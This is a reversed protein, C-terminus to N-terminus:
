GIGRESIVQALEQDFTDFDKGSKRTAAPKTETAEQTTTKAARRTSIVKLLSKGRRALIRDLTKRAERRPNDILAEEDVFGANVLDYFLDRHDSETVGLKELQTDFADEFDAQARRVERDSAGEPASAKAPEGKRIAELRDLLQKAEHNEQYAKQAWEVWGSDGADRAERTAKWARLADREEEARKWSRYVQKFRPHEPNDIPSAKEAEGEETEESEETPEEDPEGEEEKGAAEIAAQLASLEPEESAKAQEEPTSSGLDKEDQAM